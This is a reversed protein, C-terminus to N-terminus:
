PFFFIPASTDQVQSSKRKRSRDVLGVFVMSVVGGGEVMRVVDDFYFAAVLVFDFDKKRSPCFEGNVERKENM